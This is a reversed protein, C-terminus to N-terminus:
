GIYWLKLTNDVCIRERGCCDNESDEAPESEINPVHKQGSATCLVPWTPHFSVGNVMDEHVPFVFNPPLPIGEGTEALEKLGWIGLQGDFLGSILCNEGGNIDFYVRQNTHVPRHFNHLVKNTRLDWCFISNDLRAGSYLRRGDASFRLHTVGSKHGNLISIIEGDTACIGISRNYSGLAVLDVGSSDFAICSIIGGQHGNKISVDIM